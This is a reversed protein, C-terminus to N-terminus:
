QESGSHGQELHAQSCFWQSDKSLANQRPVHIGCQECRVMPQPNAESPKEQAKSVAPRNFRRWLWFAAFIVAIWFLLRFM